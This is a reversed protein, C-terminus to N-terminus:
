KLPVIGSPNNESGDKVFACKAPFERTPDTGLMDPLLRSITPRRWLAKV